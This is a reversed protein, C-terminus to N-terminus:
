KIEAAIQGMQSQFQIAKSSMDYAQETIEMQTLETSMDVNSQTLAGQQVTTGTAAQLPGSGATVAFVSNGQPLLKDPATVTVISLKGLTQGNASVTGDSGISIDSAKTGSPVTIAPQVPMGLSTTLQGTSNLQLTGNRTLGVTGDAQRVEIYGPGNLAVDLPNNTTETSGQTQDYGITSAAAGSGVIATSPEDDDTGYLLDRFGVQEAQYGPTDANAVDNSIADLQAQQAEMGAAAAYMGELM